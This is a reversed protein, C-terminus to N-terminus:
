SHSVAGSSPQQSHMPTPAVTSEASARDARSRSSLAEARSANVRRTRASRLHEMGTLTLLLLGMGYISDEVPITGIRLGLNEADNYWVIPEELGTGTLIGNTLLFPVLIGAYWIWFRGMWPTKRFGHYALLVAALAFATTTYWQDRWVFALAALFGGAFQNLRPLWSPSPNWDTYARLTEYLFICAYPVVLFFLWEELPLGLFRIGVLYRDNFGWIGMDTFWVDWALFIAAAVALGPFFYRWTKYFAVRKDFSLVLPVAIVALDIWLYLANV